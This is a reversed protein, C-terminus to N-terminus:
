DKVRKARVFGVFAKFAASPLRTAPYYLAESGLSPTWDEMIQLVDGRELFPAAERADTYAIGVGNAAAKAALETSGVVLKGSVKPQAYEGARGMEWDMIVGSPLRARICEHSLLDGPTKPTSRAELYTPAAILILTEPIGLPVAIMDQPVMSELRLGADYGEAIIDVIRGECTLDVRVDPYSRMFELVIPLLRGAGWSSANIRVLGAPRDRLEHVGEISKLSRPGSGLSFHKVQKPSLFM